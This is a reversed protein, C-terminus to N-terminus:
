RFVLLKFFFNNNIFIEYIFNIYFQTIKKKFFNYCLMVFINKFIENIKKIKQFEKTQM